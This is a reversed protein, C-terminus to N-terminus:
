RKKRPAPKPGAAQVTVTGSYRIIFERRVDPAFRTGRIARGVALIYAQDDSSKLREMYLMTGNKDLRIKYEIFREGPVADPGPKYDIRSGIEDLEPQSLPRGAPAAVSARGGGGLLERVFRSQRSAESFYLWGLAAAMVMVFALLPLSLGQKREFRTTPEPMPM